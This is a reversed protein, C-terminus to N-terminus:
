VIGICLSQDLIVFTPPNKLHQMSHVSLSNCSNLGLTNSNVSLLPPLVRVITTETQEMKTTLQFLLRHETLM